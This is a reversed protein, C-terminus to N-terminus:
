TLLRSLWWSGAMLTALGAGAAVLLARRIAIERQAEFPRRPPAPTSDPAVAAPLWEASTHLRVARLGQTLMLVLPRTYWCGPMTPLTHVVYDVYERARAVFDERAPGSSYLAAWFFVDAKRLDQAVWTETPYELLHRRELYPREHEAMWRALSLLSRHGLDFARDMEGLDRKHELFQGLAQLFATYSWYREINEVFAAPPPDDPHICRAILQEAKRLFVVDGTLRHAVVCALISHGAGRGPRHHNFTWSAHGTPALSLWRFPTFRGDDMDIVWQGLAVATDRSLPDGTLFYHLMLGLNHNHEASPGGGATGARPYTRHTSTGADVYHNTHWFLGQNYAAKDENTHYVDIDRVHKALDDMLTWWREDGTQLFQFAFGAIADYQNNYHSVFPRDAPQFASEHDAPLDGFHRWGYEDAVERKAFFGHTADLSVEVLSAYGPHADGTPQRMGPVVGARVMDEFPFRFRQPAHCWALPQTSVPDDGCALIFTHTKQEGGQLEHADSGDSPFLGVAVTSDALTLARPFNQWFNPVAVHLRGAATQATLTPTAREGNQTGDATRFRYGRFPLRVQGDRNVHTRSQWQDGGSSAQLLMLPPTVAAAPESPDLTISASTTADPLRFSVNAADLLLSGPDGLPWQGGPHQARRRNRITLHIRVAPTSAFMEVRAFVALPTAAAGAPPAATVHIEARVPGAAVVTITDVTWADTRGGSTIQLGTGDATTLDGATTALSSLPFPAGRAIRFTAENSRVYVHDASEDVVIPAHLPPVANDETDLIYAAHEGDGRTAEFDLLAWRITGDPWRELERVQSAAPTGDARRLRLTSPDAVAGRPLSVGTTVPERQRSGAVGSTDIPILRIAVATRSSSM